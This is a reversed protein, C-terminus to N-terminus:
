ARRLRARGEVVEQLLTVTEDSLDVGLARTRRTLQMVLQDVLADDQQLHALQIQAAALHEDEVGAALGKEIAWRAADLDGAKLARRALVVAIDCITAVMNQRLQEAWHWQGPAADALPAGRVFELAHVLSSNAVRNVGGGLLSQLLEWDSTIAPHLSIQGSYADPLYAAGHDDAGLWSRLRSMNSRRTTEAVMLDDAMMIATGGPNELLWACYEICQKVARPPPANRAGVLEITGLLKVMPHEASAMSSVAGGEVPAPRIATPLLIPLDATEDTAWWPAVPYDTAAAGEFAEGLARQTEGNVTYPVFREGSLLCTAQGASVQIVASGDVPMAEGACIIMSVGVGSFRRPLRAPPEDIILVVPSWAESVLPDARLQILSSDPDRNAIRQAVLGDLWRCADDVRAFVELRPEELTALWGFSEGAVVVRVMPSETLALGTACALGVCLDHRGHLWTVQEREVDYHLEARVGASRADNLVGLAVETEGRNVGRNDPAQDGATVVPAPDMLPLASAAQALGISARRARLGLEPVARGVPRKALQQRRRLVFTSALVGIAAGGLAIIGAQHSQLATVIQEGVAVSHEDSGRPQDHIPQVPCLDLDVPARQDANRDPESRGVQSQQDSDSVLDPGNEPATDKQSGPLQLHWGADILDPNSIVDSNLEVLEGWRGADGLYEASLGSLTQGPQVVITPGAREVGLEPIALMMGPELHDTSILLSTHNADAIERWKAGDGYYREALSWLNDGPQVLHTRTEPSRDQSATDAPAQTAVANSFVAELRSASQADNVAARQSSTTASGGTLLAVIGAILVATLPALSESGPFRFRWRQRTAAALGENVISLTILIWAVWGVLSIIALLLSGDDPRTLLQRWDTTWLASLRGFRALAWAGGIVMGLVALLSVVARVIRVVATM